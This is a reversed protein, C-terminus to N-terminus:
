KLRLPELSQAGPTALQEAVPAILQAASSLGQLDTGMRVQGELLKMLQEVPTEPKPYIEVNLHFRDRAGLESAIDNMAMDLGGIKDVLGLELGQRGTWVRGRAIQDARQLTMHRGEAVRTIFGQYISDFMADMRERESASYPENLSLIGSNEGVSVGDWNIGLKAWLDRLVFKGGAVGISGTMTLPLAYIRDASASIWYGGSAAAGGMSVYVKKGREKAYVVARRITESATPSGGPSNVRLVIAKVDDNRAAERIDGSLDDASIGSTAGYAALPSKMASEASGSSISGVAYILAVSPAHHRAAMRDIGKRAHKAYEEFVYFPLRDEDDKDGVLQTRIGELLVDRYGIEDILGAQRAEVDTLLGKNVIARVVQADLKRGAAIGEIVTTSIDNVLATTAERTAPSMENRELGEFLNKYEGRAIFDPTIGVKDLLKRGYPMEANIGPLSVSGMPQMWIKGFASALYFAGLGQGFDEAYVVAFKNSMRFRIVAARIEDLHAMDFSPHDFEVVLGRVRKDRGAIDLADVLDRVPLAQGAFGFGGTQNEILGGSLRLYLVMNDPVHAAGSSVLSAVLGGWVLGILVLAGIGTCLARFWGVIRQRWSRRRAPKGGADAEPKRRIVSRNKWSGQRM